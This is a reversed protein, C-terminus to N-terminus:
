HSFFHDKDIANMEAKKYYFLQRQLEILFLHSECHTSDTLRDLLKIALSVDRQSLELFQVDKHRLLQCLRVGRYELLDCKYLPNHDNEMYKLAIDIGHPDADTYISWSKICSAFSQLKNLFLRTLFDPYGKGTVIIVNHPQLEKSYADVLKNYVAEKELVILALRTDTYEVLTLKSNQKLHPILVSSDKMIASQMDDTEVNIGLTTYCLGKQAPVINLYEKSPLHFSRVITSLWYDVKKQNRYLEVNSYYIDRITRVEKEELCKHITRLLTLLVSIKNTSNPDNLSPFLLPKASGGLIFKIPQQHHEISNRALSLISEITDLVSGQFVTVYITRSPSKLAELLDHKTSCQKMYDNLCEKM